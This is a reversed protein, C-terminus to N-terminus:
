WEKALVDWQESIDDLVSQHASAFRIHEYLQKDSWTTFTKVLTLMLGGVFSSSLMEFQNPFSLVYISSDDGEGNRQIGMIAQIFQEGVAQGLEESSLGRNLIFGQHFESYVFYEDFGLRLRIEFCEM